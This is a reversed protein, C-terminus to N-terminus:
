VIETARESKGGNGPSMPYRALVEKWWNPGKVARFGHKFHLVYPTNNPVGEPIRYYNWKEADVVAVTTFNPLVIRRGHMRKWDPATFGSEMLVNLGHQDNGLGKTILGWQHVFRFGGISNRAMVVGAQLKGTVPDDTIEQPRRLTVVVDENGDVAAFLQRTPFADADLWCVWTGEPASFLAKFIVEPKFTCPPLDGQLDKGPELDYRIYDQGVSECRRRCEDMMEQYEKDRTGAQVILM